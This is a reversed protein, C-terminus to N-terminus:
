EVGGLCVLAACTNQDAFCYSNAQKVGRKIKYVKCATRSLAALRYLRRVVKNAMSYGKEFGGNSANGGHRRYWILPKHILVVKFYLFAVAALWIDHEVLSDNKPFPLAVELVSRKFAMCCGLYRSKVLHHLFGPQVHFDYFRSESLVEMNDNVTVCDHTVFDADELAAMTCSVKDDMWIDDQDSLFIIDGNAHSLANEFNHTFGHTGQNEFYRIRSDKLAQIVEKTNDKSGDDSIVIEDNSGLQKMISLLQEQIYKEGNYTAICVSIMKGNVM